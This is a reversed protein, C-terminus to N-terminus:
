ISVIFRSLVHISSQEYKFDDRINFYSPYRVNNTPYIQLLKKSGFIPWFHAVQRCIIATKWLLPCCPNIHKLEYAM